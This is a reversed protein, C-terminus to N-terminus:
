RERLTKILANVDQLQEEKFQALSEFLDKQKETVLRDSINRYFEMLKKEYQQIETLVREPDANRPMTKAPILDDDRYTPAYRVWEMRGYKEINLNRIVNLRDEHNSRLLAVVRKSEENWLAFEAVDYFDKLRDEWKVTLDLIEQLNKFAIVSGGEGRARRGRPSM